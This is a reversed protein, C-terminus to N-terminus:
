GKNSLQEKMQSKQEESLAQLKAKECISTLQGNQESFKSCTKCILLHFRLKFKEWSTAEEYQTKNCILAAKECSIM